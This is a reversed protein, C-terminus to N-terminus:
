ARSRRIGRVAADIDAQVFGKPAQKSSGDNLRGIYPVNNTVFVTGMSLRYSAAISAVASQQKQRVSSVSAEDPRMGSLDQQVPTGVSPIWNNAAWGVDRPTTETLNATVDLTLKKVQRETFQNLEGVIIRIQPDAM